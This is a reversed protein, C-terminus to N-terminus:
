SNAMEIGLVSILEKYRNRITVETVSSIDAIERQTRLRGVMHCAVYIAAAAVGTPSKGDTIEKEDAQSLIEFTKTQVDASLGLKSIFGPVFDQPRNVTMKIRLDKKVMKYCRTLEKRGVRSHGSVEDLTRGLKNKNSVLYVSAAVLADISRGRTLGRELAKRYILSAEETTHKSFGLATCIRAIEPLAQSLNRDFSNKTRARQQWKRMRYYQSRTRSSLSKGSYDRNQWDIATSLGKDHLMYTMPAGARSRQDGQEPSFVRWEAGQDIENEELVLGCEVCSLEGRTEDRDLNRSGCEGCKTTHEIETNSGFDDATM